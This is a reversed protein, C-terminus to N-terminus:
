QFLVHLGMTLLAVVVIALLVAGLRPMTRGSSARSASVDWRAGAHTRGIDHGSPHTSGAGRVGERNRKRSHFSMAGGQIVTGTIVAQAHRLKGPPHLDAVHRCALRRDVTCVAVSELNRSRCPNGSCAHDAHQIPTTEADLLLYPVPALCSAASLKPLRTPHHCGLCVWRRERPRRPPRASHKQAKQCRSSGVGRREAKSRLGNGWLADVEVSIRAALFGTPLAAYARCIGLLDTDAGIDPLEAHHRRLLDRKANIQIAAGALDCGCM